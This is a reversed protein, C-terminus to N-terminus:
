HHEEAQGLVLAQISGVAAGFVGLMTTRDVLEIEPLIQVAGSELLFHLLAAVLVAIASSRRFVRGALPLVSGASTNPHAFQWGLSVFFLGLNWTVAVALISRVLLGVPLRDIASGTLGGLVVAGLGVVTPWKHFASWTGFRMM